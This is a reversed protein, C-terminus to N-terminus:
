TLLSNTAIIWSRWRNACALSTQDMTRHNRYLRAHEMLSAKRPEPTCSTSCSTTGRSHGHDKLLVAHGSDQGKGPLARAWTPSLAAGLPAERHAMLRGPQGQVVLSLGPECWAARCLLTTFLAIVAGERFEQHKPLLTQPTEQLKLRKSPVARSEQCTQGRTIPYIDRRPVLAQWPTGWFEGCECNRTRPSTLTKPAAAEQPISKQLLWAPLSSHAGEWLLGPDTLEGSVERWPCNKQLFLSDKGPFVDLQLKLVQQHCVLWCLNNWLNPPGVRLLIFQLWPWIKCM